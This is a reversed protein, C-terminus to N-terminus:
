ITGQALFVLRSSKMGRTPLTFSTHPNYKGGQAFLPDKSAYVNWFKMTEARGKDQNTKIHIYFEISKLIFNVYDKNLYLIAHASLMNFLRFTDQDYREASIKQVGRGGYLGWKSIGLYYADADLPVSIKEKFNKVVVDGELVIFPTGTKSAEILAKKHALAVGVKRSGHLVGAVRCVDSFGLSSLTEEIEKRQDQDKDLNIYFLPIDLININKTVV